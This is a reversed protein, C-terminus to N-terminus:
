AQYRSVEFWVISGAGNQFAQLTLQSGAVATFTSGNKLLINEGAPVTPATGSTGLLTIIQGHKAGTISAIAAEGASLQYQGERPAAFTTAAAEVTAVPEMSPITGNYVAIDDGKSIQSFTMESSNADKNGTYNVALQMPNCPSGFLDKDGNCYSMIVIVKRGLFHTKFERVERRNGPHNGKVTPTFGMADPDGETNSTVEVTGPTMYLDISYAGPKLVINGELKIGSEDRPPFSLIDDVDIISMMDKPTIGKGPNGEPRTINQKVYM